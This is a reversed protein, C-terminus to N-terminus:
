EKDKRNMIVALDVCKSAYGYENDYFAVLKFFRDNLMMGSRVDFISTHTDGLFDLSVVEDDVYELVGKLSTESAEKMKACIQEYDTPEKVMVNLDVISVDPAPIRYSIGTLKGTVSPIVLGVAKAAGTSTPIINGYVSRGVRWDKDSRSDVVAQKSTSAHITSMLGQEVGWNEEVVKVLPALCNTTCSANSVIDMDSTYSEHNVGVVFTPTERDKAPASMIVKKAGAKLHASAKESTLYAGTGDIIYEAGCDTWPIESAETCAYIPIEKGDVILGKDYVEISAPFRGFTSDYALRYRLYNLDANRVNIGVIEVDERNLADRMVLTSIRGFGNVGIKVSM